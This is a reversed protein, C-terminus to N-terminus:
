TSRGRMLELAIAFVTRRRRKAEVRELIEQAQRYASLCAPDTVDLDLLSPEVTAKASGREFLCEDCGCARGHFRRRWRAHAEAAVLSPVASRGKFTGSSGAAPTRGAPAKM